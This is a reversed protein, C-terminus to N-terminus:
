ANSFQLFRLDNTIESLQELMPLDANASVVFRASIVNSFKDFLMEISYSANM